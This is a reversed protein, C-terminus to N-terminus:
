PAALALAIGEIVRRVEPRHRDTDHTVIWQEHSLEPVEAGRRALDPQADGIFTPLLAIGRGALALDLATRPATVECIADAGLHRAQWRGSPTDALVRIWRDPADARAYPAFGIRAIRRGALGDDRPRANRVGIVAERHAIDLVAEASVFRLRLDEGAIGDLRPILHLVTWTGASIKVLPRQAGPAPATVRVIRAEVETLADLLARGDTTLAYGRDHRLFLERGTARELALMRRGITAPSRGTVRAAPSLGGERAVSLFLRLDRWDLDALAENM